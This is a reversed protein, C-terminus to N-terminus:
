YLDSTYSAEEEDIEEECEDESEEPDEDWYDVM